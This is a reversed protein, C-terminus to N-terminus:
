HGQPCFADALQLLLKRSAHEPWQEDQTIVSAKVAHEGCALQYTSVNLPLASAGPRLETDGTLECEVLGDLGASSKFWREELMRSFTPAVWSDVNLQGPREACPPPLELVPMQAATMRTELKLNHPPHPKAPPAVSGAPPAVLTMKTDALRPRAPKESFCQQMLAVTAAKADKTAPSDEHECAAAAGALVREVLVQTQGQKYDKWFIGVSGDAKKIAVYQNWLVEVLEVNCSILALRNAEPQPGLRQKCVSLAEAWPKELDRPWQTPLPETFTRFRLDQDGVTLAEWAATVDEIQAGRTEKELTKLLEAKAEPSVGSAAFLQLGGGKRAGRACALLLLLLVAHKV